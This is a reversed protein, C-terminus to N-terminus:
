QLATYRFYVSWIVFRGDKQESRVEVKYMVHKRKKDENYGEGALMLTKSVFHVSEITLVSVDPVRHRTMAEQEESPNILELLRRAFGAMEEVPMKSVRSAFECVLLAVDESAAEFVCADNSFLESVSLGIASGKREVHVKKGECAVGVRDYTDYWLLKGGASLLLVHRTTLLLVRAGDDVACHCVYQERPQLEIATSSNVTRLLNSGFALYADYPALFGDLPICRPFRFPALTKEKHIINKVGNVANTVTSIAGSLPDIVLGTVATGLGKVGGIFGEEAIGASTDKYLGKVGASIGHIIGTKGAARDAQYSESMSLSALGNGVTDTVKSVSDLLGYATLSLLKSAGKGVSKAFDKPTKMLCEMPEFFLATVGESLNGVLEVPNGLLNFAGLLLYLKTIVQMVYHVVLKSVFQSVPLFADDMAFSNLQLSATQLNAVLSTLTNVLARLPTFLSYSPLLDATLPASSSNHLSLKVSIPQLLLEEIYCYKQFAVDVFPTADALLPASDLVMRGTKQDFYSSIVAFDNMMALLAVVTPSDVAISWPQMLFGVYQLYLVSPRQLLRLSCELMKKERKSGDELEEVEGAETSGLLVPYKSGAISNDIQIKTVSANVMMANDKSLVFRASVDQVMVYLIERPTQDVVSIGVGAIHAVVDVAVPSLAHGPNLLSKYDLDKEKKKLFLETSFADAKSVVVNVHEMELVSDVQIVCPEESESPLLMQYEGVELKCYDSSSGCDTRRFCVRLPQDRQPWHFPTPKGADLRLSASDNEQLMELPLGTKNLVLISPSITVIKSFGFVGPASVVSIGYVRKETCASTKEMTLTTTGTTGVASIGVKDSWQSESTRFFLSSSLSSKACSFLQPKLAHEAGTAFQQPLCFSVKQSPCSRYGNKDEKKEALTLSEGTRNIIWYDCFVQLMLEGVASVKSFYSLRLPLNCEDYVLASQVADSVSPTISDDFLSYTESGAPKIRIRVPQESKQLSPDVESAYLDVREGEALSGELLVLSGRVVRYMFPVPLMNQLVMVPLLSLTVVDTSQKSFSDFVTRHHVVVRVIVPSSATGLNVCSPCRKKLSALTFGDCETASTDNTLQLAATHIISLPCFLSEQNALPTFPVDDKGEDVFRAFVPLSTNNEIRVTSTIDIVKRGQTIGNHLIADFRNHNQDELPLFVDRERDVACSVPAFSPIQIQISRSPIQHYDQNLFMLYLSPHVLLPTPLFSNEVSVTKHFDSEDVIPISLSAFPPHSRAEAMHHFREKWVAETERTVHLTVVTQQSTFVVADQEKWEYADATFFPTTGEKSLFVPVADFVRLFPTSTHMELWVIRLEGDVDVEVMDEFLVADWDMQKLVQESVRTLTHNVGGDSEIAYTMDFGTSNKVGIYCGDGRRHRSHSCKMLSEVASVISSLLPGTCNIQLVSPASVSVTMSDKDRPLADETVEPNEERKIAVAVSWPEIYPEWVAASPKYYDGALSLDAQLSLGSDLQLQCKLQTVLLQLIPLEFELADNVMILTIGDMEISVQVSLPREEKAAPQQTSPTPTSTTTSTATSTTTSTVTSTTTSTVTSSASSATSSSSASTAGNLAYKAPDLGGKPLLHDVFNMFLKADLIGLRLHLPSAHGSVQISTFRDKLSCQIWFNFPSIADDVDVPLLTLSNNSRCARLDTMRLSVEVVQTPSISVVANLGFCLLFVPSGSEEPDEIAYVSLGKFSLSLNMNPSLSPTEKPLEAEKVNPSLASFDMPPLLAAFDTDQLLCMYRQLFPFLSDLFTFIYSSPLISLQGLYVSLTMDKVVDSPAYADPIAGNPLDGLRVDKMDLIVGLAPANWDGLRLLSKYEEVLTSEPRSDRVDISGLSAGVSIVSGKVSVLATLDTLYLRLLSEPASSNGAMAVGHHTGEYGASGRLWEVIIGGLKVDVHVCVANDEVVSAGWEFDDLESALSDISAASHTRQIPTPEEDQLSSVAAARVEHQEAPPLSQVMKSPFLCPREQLAQLLLSTIDVVQQEAIAIFLPTMEVHVGIEKALIVRVRVDTKGIHTLERQSIVSTLNLSLGVCLSASEERNSVLLDTLAFCVRDDSESCRPILVQVGGLKVDLAPLSPQSKSPAPLEPADNTESHSEDPSLSLLLSLLQMVEYLTLDNIVEYVWRMHSVIRLPAIVCQISLPSDHAAALVADTILDMHVTVFREADTHDVSLIAGYRGAGETLDKLYLDALSLQLAMATTTMAVEAEVRELGVSLLPTHRETDLTLRVGDLRANLHLVPRPQPTEHEVPLANCDEVLSPPNDEVPSTQHDEVAPSTQHDEVPAAECEGGDPRSPLPLVFEVLSKVLLPLITVGIAGVAVSVQTGASEDSPHLQLAVQARVFCPANGMVSKECSLPTTSLLFCPRGKLHSAVGDQISLEGLSVAAEVCEGVCCTLQTQKLLLHVLPIPHHSEDTVRVDIEKLLVSACVLQERRHLEADWRRNLREIRRKYLLFSLGASLAVALLGILTLKLHRFLLLPFSFGFFGLLLIPLYSSCFSSILHLLYQLFGSKYCACPTEKKISDKQPTEEAPRNKQPTEEPSDKPTEKGSGSKPVDAVSEVPAPTQQSQLEELLKMACRYQDHSLCVAIREIVVRVEILAHPTKRYVYYDHAAKLVECRREESVTTSVLQLKVADCYEKETHSALVVVRLVEAEQQSVRGEEVLRQACAESSPQREEVRRLALDLDATVCLNHLLSGKVCDKQLWEKM